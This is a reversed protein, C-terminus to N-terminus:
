FRDLRSAMEIQIDLTSILTENHIIGIYVKYIGTPLLRDIPVTKTSLTINPLNMRGSYPCKHFLQPASDKFFSIIFLAFKPFLGDGRMVACLDFKLKPYAPRYITTYRYFLQSEVIIPGRVVKLINYDLNLTSVNRSIPKVFCKDFKAYSPEWIKCKVSKFKMNIWEDEASTTNSVLVCILLFKLKLSMTKETKLKLHNEKQIEVSQSM